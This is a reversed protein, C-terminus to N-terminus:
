GILDQLRTAHGSGPFVVTDLVAAPVRLHEHLLGKLLAHLELTTALDRGDHLAGAALGPWDALVRGGRVAGGAVLVAGGTGHDTGATGNVAVTRGFESALVVVSRSWADGLGEALAAMGADLQRLNRALAGAPQAESAHTDWGQQELVAVRPGQPQALFRAAAAMLAPFQGTGRAVADGEHVARAEALARALAVDNAYLDAIRAVLEGDPAPLVSPAWSTVPAAGRLALPIGAGLAIAQMPAGAAAAASSAGALSAHALARNLWGDTATFPRTTGAELVNQADFHSRDRYPSCTAHAVLLDGSRYMGHLTPLLPHLAFFGDLPLPTTAVAPAGAGTMSPAGAAAALLPARLRAYDPDGVPPVVALGDMGGRLIVFVFRPADDAAGGADGAHASRWPMSGALALLSAGAAGQLARRRSLRPPM